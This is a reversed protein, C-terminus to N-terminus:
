QYNEKRRFSKRRRDILSTPNFQHDRYRAAWRRATSAGPVLTHKHNRAIEACSQSQEDAGVINEAFFRAYPLRYEVQAREEADAFEYSDLTNSLQINKRWAERKFGHDFPMMEGEVYAREIEEREFLQRDSDNDLKSVLVTQEDCYAIRYADGRFHIETGAAIQM